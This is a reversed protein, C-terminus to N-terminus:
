RRRRALEDLEKAGAETLALPLVKHDYEQAQDLTLPSSGQTSQPGHHAFLGAPRIASSIPACNARHPEQLAFITNLIVPMSYWSIRAPRHFSSSRTDPSSAAPVDSWSWPTTDLAYHQYAYQGLVRCRGTSYVRVRHAPGSAVQSKLVTM